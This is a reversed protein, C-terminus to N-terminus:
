NTKQQIGNNDITYNGSYILESMGVFKYGKGSLTALMIPLAEVIHDSNNHCLIISGNAVKSTVRENIQSASIGKWDLSDVSWQIPTLNNAKVNNIFATNYDGFPARFFTPTKGTLSKIKENVSLMESKAEDTSITTMKLHSESHNGIEFGEKDILKVLDPYQKIWFGVLFFTAKANYKKLIQMIQTTKDAGWAADFTLAVVKEATDVAYIPLSKVSKNTYVSAVAPAFMAASCVICLMVVLSCVIVVKKTTTLIM